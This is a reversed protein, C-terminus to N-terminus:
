IKLQSLLRVTYCLSILEVSQLHDPSAIVSATGPSPKMAHLLLFNSQKDLQINVIISVAQNGPLKNKLTM